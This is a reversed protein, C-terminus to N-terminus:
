VSATVNTVAPIIKKAIMQVALKAAAEDSAEFVDALLSRKTDQLAMVKEEVTGACILKYSTVM